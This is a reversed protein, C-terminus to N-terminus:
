DGVCITSSHQSVYQDSPVNHREVWIYPCVPSMPVCYRDESVCQNISSRQMAQDTPVNYRDWLSLSWSAVRVQLKVLSCTSLGWSAVSIYELNLVSCISKSKTIYCVAVEVHLVSFVVVLLFCFFSSPHPFMETFRIVEDSLCVSTKWWVSLRGLRWRDGRLRERPKRSSRRVGLQHLHCCHQHVGPDM